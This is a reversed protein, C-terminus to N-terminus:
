IYMFVSVCGLRSFNVGSHETSHCVSLFNSKEGPWNRYSAPLFCSLTKLNPVSWYGHTWPPSTNCPKEKTQIRLGKNATLVSKSGTMRSEYVAWMWWRSATHRYGSSSQHRGAYALVSCHGKTYPHIDTGWNQNHCHIRAAKLVGAESPTWRRQQGLLRM